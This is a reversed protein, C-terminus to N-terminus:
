STACVLLIKRFQNNPFPHLFLMNCIVLVRYIHNFIIEYPNELCITITVIIVNVIRGIPTFVFM